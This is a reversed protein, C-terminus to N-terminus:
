SCWQECFAFANRSSGGDIQEVLAVYDLGENAAAARGVVEGDSRLLQEMHM